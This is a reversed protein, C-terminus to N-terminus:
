ENICIKKYIFKYTNKSIYTKENLKNNLFLFSRWDFFFFIYFVEINM